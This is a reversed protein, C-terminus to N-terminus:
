IKLWNIRVTLIVLIRPRISKEIEREEESVLGNRFKFDNDM